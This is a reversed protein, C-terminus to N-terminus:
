PGTTCAGSPAAPSRVSLNYTKTGLTCPGYAGSVNRAQQVLERLHQQVKQLSIIHKPVWPVLVTPEQFMVPKHSLSGFTGSSWGRLHKTGETCPSDVGLGDCPELSVVPGAVSSCSQETHV